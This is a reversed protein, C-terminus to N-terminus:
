FINKKFLVFKVNYPVYTPLVCGRGVAKAGGFPWFKAHPSDTSFGGPLVTGSWPVTALSVLGGCCSYGPVGGGPHPKGHHDGQGWFGSQFDHGMM